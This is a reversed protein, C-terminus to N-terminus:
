ILLVEEEDESVMIGDANKFFVGLYYIKKLLYDIKVADVFDNMELLVNWLKIAEDKIISIQEIDNYINKGMKVCYKKDNDLILVHMDEKLKEANFVIIINRGNLRENTADRVFKNKMYNSELNQFVLLM